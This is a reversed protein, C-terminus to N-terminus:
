RPDGAARDAARWTALGPFTGAVDLTRGNVVLVALSVLGVALGSSWLGAFPSHQWGLLSLAGVGVSSYVGLFRRDFRRVETWRVLGVQKLVNHLLLTVTTATAAGVAGYSPVLLLNLVVNVGAAALNVAVTYGIKGHVQLTLGNFGLAANAYLGVALVTLLVASSAYRQGFLLVTLPESAFATLAFLPFSLVAIWAATRWYLESLGEGDRRSQLRAAAPLYLVTFSTLVLATVNALPQVVRLRAVETSGHWAGVILADMANMSVYVLDTTLLPLSFLLVPGLPVVVRHQQWAARLGGHVLAQGLLFGYLVTGLAGAAVYGAALFDLGLHDLALLGVVALRLGPALLYQRVFISRVDGLVGLAAGLVGDLAQLPALVILWALLPAATPRGLVSGALWGRAGLTLLVVCLGLAAVLGLTLVLTGLVRPGDGQEDYAALFKGVGRSLGLTAVTEAVVVLSLAYAFTGFDGESLHRALLVQVLLNLGLAILRGLLLASSGRISATVSVPVAGPSAAVAGSRM